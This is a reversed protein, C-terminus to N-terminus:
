AGTQGPVGPQWTCDVACAGIRVTTRIPRNNENRQTDQEVEGAPDGRTVNVSALLHDGALTLVANALRHETDEGDVNGAALNALERLAGPRRMSWGASEGLALRASALSETLEANKSHATELDDEVTAFREELADVYARQVGFLAGKRSPEADKGPM